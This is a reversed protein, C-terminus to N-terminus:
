RKRVNELLGDLRVFFENRIKEIHLAEKYDLMTRDKTKFRDPEVQLAYSNVQRKWFWEACCFQINKQDIATIEKLTEILGRGSASNEICFAIYAIRYEVKDITNTIPLPELNHSDNQGYYIFHGYCSQLTFCHPLNNFANILEIIPVDIMDDSLDALIKQRQAQYHPNEVLEKTETYTEM